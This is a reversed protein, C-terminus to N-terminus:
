QVRDPRSGNDSVHRTRDEMILTYSSGRWLFAQSEKKSKSRHVNGAKVHTDLAM